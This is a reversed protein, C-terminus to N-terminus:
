KGFSSARDNGSMEEQREVTSTLHPQGSGPVETHSSEAVLVVREARKGM